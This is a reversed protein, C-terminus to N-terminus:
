NLTSKPKVLLSTGIYLRKTNSLKKIARLNMNLLNSNMKAFILDRKVKRVRSIQTRVKLKLVQERQQYNMELIYNYM